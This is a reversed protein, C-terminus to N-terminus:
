RMFGSLGGTIKKSDFGQVIVTGSASASRSLCTYYSHHTYCLGLDVVNYKRTKGQSAYDTMAFNPLVVVQQRKISIISDHPLCCTAATTSKSIPVVNVPLGPLNITKPPDVHRFNGIAM